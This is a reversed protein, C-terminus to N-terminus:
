ASIDCLELKRAGKLVDSLNNVAEMTDFNASHSLNLIRLTKLVEPSQALRGTIEETMESSFYNGQLYLEELCSNNSSFILNLFTMGITRERLWWGPNNALNISILKSEDIELSMNELIEIQKAYLKSNQLPIITQSQGVSLYFSQRLSQLQLHERPKM